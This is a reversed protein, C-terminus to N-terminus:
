FIYMIISLVPDHDRTYGRDCLTIMSVFSALGDFVHRDCKFLTDDRTIKSRIHNEIQQQQQQQEQTNTDLELYIKYVNEIFYM